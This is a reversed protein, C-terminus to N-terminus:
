PIRPGDEFLFVKVTSAVVPGRSGLLRRLVLVYEVDAEIDVIGPVM